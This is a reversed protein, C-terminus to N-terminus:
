GNLPRKVRGMYSINGDITYRITRNTYSEYSKFHEMLIYNTIKNFEEEDVNKRSYYVVEDDVIIFYDNYRTVNEYSFNMPNDEFQKFIESFYNDLYIRNQNEYAKTFSLNVIFLFFMGGLITVFSFIINLQTALKLKNM